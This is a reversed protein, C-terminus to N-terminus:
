RTRPSQGASNDADMEAITENSSMAANLAPPDPDTARMMEADLDRGLGAQERMSRMYSPMRALAAPMTINPLNTLTDTEGTPTLDSKGEFSISRSAPSPRLVKAQERLRELEEASSRRANLLVAAAGVADGSRFFNIAESGLGEDTTKLREIVAESSPSLRVEALRQTTSPSMPEGGFAAMKFRAASDPFPFAKADVSSNSGASPPHAGSPRDLSIDTLAASRPEGYPMIFQTLTQRATADFLWKCLTAELAPRKVPKALYDVMGADLARERDGKIASATLAIVPLMRIEANLSRRIQRTAEYGDCEPMQCDMLIADYRNRGLEELAKLGNEATRCNFGMRKINKSAIQANVVNDEAILIWIDQRPRLQQKEVESAGMPFVLSAPLNQEVARSKSMIEAHTQAQRSTAKSFLIIFWAHSGEGEISELGITGKMLEVLNKSISLGLGTGGFRRATSPDAQSFPKFLRSLTTESIGCGTDRVDFKVELSDSTESLETVELSIYGRATFKIANTLLNTIVQRLRGVDGLLQGKYSLSVSDRFELGKKQTAFSLMRKADRLLVELNFPAKEVDLKGIEVKSFDLVDNIVTLLGEASRQITEAYDRQQASLGKEDLLLESLGIVGAIPTRIEHSMNALFESKLRSAERAAGEAALARTKEMLSQEIQEQARKRDTIDLSAGVVGIIEADAMEESAAVDMLNNADNQTRRMPTYSTRFWRGEIEMEEVVTEGGLARQMSKGILAPDWISYISKGIMQQRIDSRGSNSNSGSNREMIEDGEADETDQQTRMQGGERSGPTGPALLKLQRVGPGEALTIRGEKDTSWITMAAHNIVSELQAQAHRSSALAEVQDHIDTCTGFWRAIKGYDDRMPLARGLFWRYVGDHRLVRYAVEYLEGTRLSHSWRESAEGFDEEHIVAQWGAGRSEAETHGTYVYWSTSYWEIYGSPSAVFVLQPMSDCTQRFYIDGEHRVQQRMKLTEATVNRMVILGGIHEGLGDNARLPKASIEILVREGNSKSECGVIMPPSVQGLVSTRYIPWNDEEFPKEFKEDYCRMEDNVWDFPGRKEGDEVEMTDQKKIPQHTDKDLGSWGRFEKFLERCANNQVVTTADKSALMVAVDLRDLSATRLAEIMALRDNSSPSDSRKSKDPVLYITFCAEHVHQQASKAAPEMPSSPSHFSRPSSDNPTGTTNGTRADVSSATPVFFPDLPFWASISLEVNLQSKHAAGPQILVNTVAPPNTPAAAASQAAENCALNYTAKASSAIYREMRQGVATADSVGLIAEAPKNLMKITRTSDLVVLPVPAFYLARLSEDLDM